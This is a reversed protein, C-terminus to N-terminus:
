FHKFNTNSVSSIARNIIQKSDENRHINIKHVEDKLSLRFECTPNTSAAFHLVAALQETM